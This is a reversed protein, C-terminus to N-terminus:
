IGLSLGLTVPFTGAAGFASVRGDTAAEFIETADEDTVLLQSRIGLSLRTSETVEYGIRLEAYSTFYTETFEFPEAQGSVPILFADTDFTSAGAGLGLLTSWGPLRDNTFRLLVGATTNWIRVAPGEEELPGFGSERSLLDVRADGRLSVAPTLRYSLGLGATPGPGALNRMEGVTTVVGGRGELTWDGARSVEQAHVAAALLPISLWSAVM